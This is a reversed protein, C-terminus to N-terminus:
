GLLVNEHLTEQPTYICRLSHDHLAMNQNTDDNIQGKLLSIVSFIMNLNMETVM